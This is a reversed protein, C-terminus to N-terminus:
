ALAQRRLECAGCKGCPRGYAGLLSRPEELGQPDYCSWTLDFPVQLERGLNVVQRKTKGTFPAEVRVGYGADTAASVASVFEHRCDPYVPRDDLTPAAYVVKAVKQVALSVALSVFLLNRGPVVTPSGSVAGDGGTLASGALVRPPLDVRVDNAGYYRAVQFASWLEREHRQGYHVSLAYVHRHNWRVSALLVASDLGGSLLIVADTM